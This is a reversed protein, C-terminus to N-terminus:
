PAKFNCVTTKDWEIGVCKVKCDASHRFCEAGPQSENRFARSSHLSVIWIQLLLPLLIHCAQCPETPTKQLSLLYLMQRMPLVGSLQNTNFLWQIFYYYYYFNGFCPNSNKGLKLNLNHYVILWSLSQNSGHINLVLSTLIRLYAMRRNFSSVFLCIFLVVAVVFFLLM